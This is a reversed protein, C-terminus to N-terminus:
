KKVATLHSGFFFLFFRKGIIKFINKNISGFSNRINPWKKLCFINKFINAINHLKFCRFLHLSNQVLFKHM